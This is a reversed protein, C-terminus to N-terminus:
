PTANLPTGFSRFSHELEGSDGATARKAAHPDPDRNVTGCDASLDPRCRGGVCDSCSRHLALHTSTSPGIPDILTRM